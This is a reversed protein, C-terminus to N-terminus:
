GPVAGHGRRAQRLCQSGSELQAGAGTARVTQSLRMLARKAWAYRYSHLTVGKIKLGQCRQRFESARDGPRVTALYPFLPGAVPRRRLIAEVEAGFRILAPKINARGKLKKRTYCITRGEWNIDEARLCAGDSQAAGHAM